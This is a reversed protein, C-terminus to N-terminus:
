FILRMDYWQAGGHTSDAVGYNVYGFKEYYHVLHTKCTLIVGKKGRQRALAIYREMLQAAIGQRRHEPLVDLGFVTQYAADPRHLGADHYLEDPLCPADHNAGNIFGVVQGSLEAALFNEPFAALRAQIQAPSAAEAAPFCVGEIRALVPGEQPRAQRIFVSECM